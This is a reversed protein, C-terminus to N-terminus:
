REGAPAVIQGAATERAEEFVRLLEDDLDPEGALPVPRNRVFGVAVGRREADAAVVEIAAAKLETLYFDCRESAARKLDSRLEGHRALNPSFVRIDAGHRAMGKRLEAEHEPAATVFLAVRSGPPIAGTPEPELRCAVLSDHDCWDGLSRKLANLETAALHDAGVIAVLDSRLLRYPGLYSLAERRARVASTVCVTRHAEVGPLAAGSGELLLVDPDLAVALRAADLVTSDHTEGAPGEGCRRCGVCSVGSLVADELYDSAAHGGAAVIARLADLDPREDAHV